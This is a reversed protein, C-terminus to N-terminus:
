TDRLRCIVGSKVLQRHQQLCLHRQPKWHGRVVAVVVHRSYKYVKAGVRASRSMSPRLGLYISATEKTM